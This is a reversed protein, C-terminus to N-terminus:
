IPISMHCKPRRRVVYSFYAVVAVTIYNLVPRYIRVLIRCPNSNSLRALLFLLPSFKLSLKQSQCEFDDIPRFLTRVFIM